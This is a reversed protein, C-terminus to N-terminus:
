WATTELEKIHNFHQDATVLAINHEIALAAIWIDNDPIPKGMSKFQSKTEGYHHATAENVELVPYNDLFYAVEELCKKRNIVLGSAYAGFYLEGIVISPLFVEGEALKKRITENGKFFDIIIKTNVLLRGSVKM